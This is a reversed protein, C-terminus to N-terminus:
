TSGRSNWSNRSCFGWIVRVRVSPLLAARDSFSTNRGHLSELRRAVNEVPLQRLVAVGEVLDQLPPLESLFLGRDGELGEPLLGEQEELPAVVEVVPAHLQAPVRAEGGLGRDKEGLHHGGVVQDTFSLPHGEQAGGDGLVDGGGVAHDKVLEAVGHGRAGDIQGVQLAAGIGYLLFENVEHPAAAQQPVPGALPLGRGSEFLNQEACIKGCVSRPGQFMWPGRKM